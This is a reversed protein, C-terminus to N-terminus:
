LFIRLYARVPVRVVRPVTPLPRATAQLLFFFSYLVVNIKSSSDVVEEPEIVTIDTSPTAELPPPSVREEKIIVGSSLSPAIAIVSAGATKPIIGLHHELSQPAMYSQGFIGGSPQSPGSLSPESVTGVGLGLGGGMMDDDEDERPPTFQVPELEGMCSQDKPM